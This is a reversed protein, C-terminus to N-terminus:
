YNNLIIFVPKLPMIFSKQYAFTDKDLVYTTNISNIRSSFTKDILKKSDEVVVM